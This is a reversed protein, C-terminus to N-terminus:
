SGPGLAAAEGLFKAGARLQTLVRSHHLLDHAEGAQRPGHHHPQHLLTYLKVHVAELNFRSSPGPALAVLWSERVAHRGLSVVRM